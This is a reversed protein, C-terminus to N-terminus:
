HWTRPSVAVLVLFLFRDALIGCAVARRIRLHHKNELPPSNTTVTTEHKQEEDMQKNNDPSGTIAPHTLRSTSSPSTNETNLPQTPKRAKLAKRGKGPTSGGM